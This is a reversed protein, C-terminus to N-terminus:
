LWWEDPLVGLTKGPWSTEEPHGPDERPDLFVGILPTRTTRSGMDHKSVLRVVTYETCKLRM